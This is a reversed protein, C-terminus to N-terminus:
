KAKILFGNTRKNLGSSIKVDELNFYELLDIAKATKNIHCRRYIETLTDKIYKKSYREGIVFFQTIEPTLLYLEKYREYYRELAAMDYNFARLGDSGYVYYYNYYKSSISHIDNSYALLDPYADFFQAFYMMRTNDDELRYFEGVFSLLLPPLDSNDAMEFGNRVIVSQVSEHRVYIRDRMEWAHQEAILANVCNKAIRERTLPDEYIVGYPCIDRKVETAALAGQSLKNWENCIAESQRWKMEQDAYFEERSITTGVTTKVYITCRKRFHNEALRQRGVIQVLDLSLDTCMSKVNSDAFVYTSASTSYFDVGFYSCKSCFTYTCHPRGRLPIKGFGFGNGLGKIIKKNKSDNAVLINVESAQLKNETITKAIDRVNNVFFIAETSEHCIGNEIITDFFGDNRYRSIIKSIEDVTSTMPLYQTQVKMIKDESWELEIYPLNQLFEMRDLYEELIPTASIYWVNHLKYLLSSVREIVDPKLTYDQFCAQHEDVVYLFNIGSDKLIPYITPLSDYTVIVKPVTKYLTFPNQWTIYNRLNMFTKENEEKQKERDTKCSPRFYFYSEHEKEMQEVKNEALYKRPVCLVTPINNHLAWYTLGCGPYKKNIIVQGQPIENEFGVWDSIYNVNNPVHIIKKNM